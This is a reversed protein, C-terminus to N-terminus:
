NSSPQSRRKPWARRGQGVTTLCVGDQAKTAPAPLHQRMTGHRSRRRVAAKTPDRQGKEEQGGQGGASGGPPQKEGLWGFAKRRGTSMGGRVKMGSFMGYGPCGRTKVSRQGAFCGTEPVVRPFFQGEDRFLGWIRSSSQWGVLLDSLFYYTNRSPVPLLRGPLLAKGPAGRVRGGQLRRTQKHAAATGGIMALVGVRVGGEDRFVGQIRSSGQTKSRRGLLQVCVSPFHVSFLVVRLIDQRHMKQIFTSADFVDLRMQLHSTEVEFTKSFAIQGTSLCCQQRWLMLRVM